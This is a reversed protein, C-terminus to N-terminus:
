YQGVAVPELGSDLLPEAPIVQVSAARDIARQKQAMYGLASTIGALIPIDTNYALSSFFAVLLFVILSARLTLALQRLNEWTPGPSRSRIISNLIKFISFLFTLYIVLGPIGMESSVQTYTNHPVHWLGRQEGRAIAMENQAVAFNGPGVGLLPHKMTLVISDILLQKRGESSGITAMKRKEAPDFSHIDYEGFFTTYRIFMEKPMLVVIAAFVLPIAVMMKIRTARKAEFFLVLVLVAAGFSGSRSGTRSLTLLIPPLLLVAIVKQIRNGRLYLYGVFTLGVLLTWALDNANAYRTNDLMLRGGQDRTNKVLTLLSLVGVGYAITHFVRIAQPLTTLLGATLFFVLAAKYWNDTLVGFSGGPWYGFPICAIFWATFLAITRGTPTNLVKFFQGSGFVVLLGLAGLILQPRLKGIVPLSEVLGSFIFFVFVVLLPFSAKLFPNSQRQISATM